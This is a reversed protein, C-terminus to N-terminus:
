MIEDEAMGTDGGAAPAATPQAAGNTVGNAEAPGEGPAFYDVM